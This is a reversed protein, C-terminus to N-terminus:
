WLQLFTTKAFTKSTKWSQVNFIVMLARLDAIKRQDNEFTAFINITRLDRTLEIM